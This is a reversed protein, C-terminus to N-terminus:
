KVGELMTDSWKAFDEAPMGTYDYISTSRIIRTTANAEIRVSMRTGDRKSYARCRCTVSSETADTEPKEFQATDKSLVMFAAMRKQYIQVAVAMLEDIDKPEKKLLLASIVIQHGEPKSNLILTDESSEGDKQWSGGVEVTAVAHKFEAAGGCSVALFAALAPLLKKM